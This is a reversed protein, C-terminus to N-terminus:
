FQFYLYSQETTFYYSVLIMFIYYTSWRLWKPWDSIDLAHTKNQKYQYGELVLYPTLIWLKSIYLPTSAFNFSLLSNFYSIAESFNTARFFISALSFYLFVSLISLSSRLKNIKSHLQNGSPTAFNKYLLFVIGHVAGWVILNLKSGHWLGSILFVLMINLHTRFKSKKSGGLPLYVYDRFWTSLTIHWRKWLEQPTKSFFPFHFNKSLQIGFLRAMGIAMDSYGSFDGYVQFIFYISGLLLTVTDLSEYANFILDVQRGCADGIVIKKFLGLLIFRFGDKVLRINFLPKAEFQPLMNKAREIPGAALQPFFSVYTFFPLWQTCAKIRGFYVDITYSLTQLTYFSIGIPLILSMSSASFKKGFFTISSLFDNIFFDLYKFSLLMGLNIVLSVALFLRKVTLKDTRQLQIGIIFDTITSSLLLLLFWPNWFGYFYYSALLLVVNRYRYFYRVCFWYTFLIVPLFVAFNLSNFLM